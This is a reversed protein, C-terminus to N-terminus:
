LRPVTLVSGWLVVVSAQTGLARVRYCSFGGCHSARYAAGLSQGGSETGLSFDLFVDAANIQTAPHPLRCISPFYSIFM